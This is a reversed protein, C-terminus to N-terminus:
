GGFDPVIEIERGDFDDIFEIHTLIGMELLKNALNDDSISGYGKTYAEEIKSKDLIKSKFHMKMREDTPMEKKFIKKIPAHMMLAEEYEEKEQERSGQIVIKIWQIKYQMDEDEVDQTMVFKIKGSANAKKKALSMSSKIILWLNEQFSLFGAARNAQRRFWSSPM